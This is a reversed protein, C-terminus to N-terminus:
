EPRQQTSFRFEWKPDWARARHLTLWGHWMRPCTTRFLRLSPYVSRWMPYRKLAIRFKVPSRFQNELSILPLAGVAGFRLANPEM